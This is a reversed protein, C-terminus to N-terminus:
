SGSQGQNSSSFEELLPTNADERATKSKFEVLNTQGTYKEVQDRFAQSAVSAEEMMRLKSLKPKAKFFFKAMKICLGYQDKDFNRHVRELQCLDFANIKAGFNTWSARGHRLGQYCAQQMKLSNITRCFTNGLRYKIEARANINDIHDRDKELNIELSNRQEPTLNDLVTESLPKLENGFEKKCHMKMALVVKPEALVHFGDCNTHYQIMEETIRVNENREEIDAIIAKLSGPEPQKNIAKATKPQQRPPQPRDPVLATQGDKPMLQRPGPKPAPIVAPVLPQSQATVATQSLNQTRRRPRVVRNMLNQSFGRERRKSAIWRQAKIDTKTSAQYFHTVGKFCLALNKSKTRCVGRATAWTGSNNMEDFAIEIGEICANKPNVLKCYKQANAEKAEAATPPATSVRSFAYNWTATILFLFIYKM